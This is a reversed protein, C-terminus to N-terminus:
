KLRKIQVPIGCVTLIVEHAVRALHQNLRGAADRFRRTETDAPIIGMGVENTVIILDCPPSEISALFAGIQAATGDKMFRHHFLNGLWVTVCDILAVEVEPALAKLAGALDIPAEVTQFSSDRARRHDDIRARMEQDVAEATAVFAKRGYRGALELAYSSKGSRSGGTVLVVRKM